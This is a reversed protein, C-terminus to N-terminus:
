DIPPPLQNRAQIETGKELVVGGPLQYDKTCQRFSIDLPSWMRLTECVVKDLYEMGQVASFGLCDGGENLEAHAAYAEDIEAQLAEQAEPNAALLYFLFSLTNGTTDYGAALLLVATSVITLEDFTKKSHHRVEVEEDDGDDAGGESRMADIMLDILDNRRTKTEIRHRVTQTITDMFFRTAEPKLVPFKVADLLQKLGPILYFM